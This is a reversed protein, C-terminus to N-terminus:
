KQVVLLEHQFLTVDIMSGIPIHVDDVYPEVENAIGKKLFDAFRGTDAIWAANSLTVFRESINKIKGTYYLTVTRIFVNEGIALPFDNANNM